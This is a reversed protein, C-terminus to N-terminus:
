EEAHQYALVDVQIMFHDSHGLDHCYPLQCAAAVKCHVSNHIHLEAAINESRLGMDLVRSGHSDFHTHVGNIALNKGRAASIIKHMNADDPLLNLLVCRSRALFTEWAARRQRNDSATCTKQPQISFDGLLVFELGLDHVVSDM